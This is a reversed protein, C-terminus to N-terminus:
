RQRSIEHTANLTVPHWGPSSSKQLVQARQSRIRTITARFFTISTANILLKSHNKSLYYLYAYSYNGNFKESRQKNRGKKILFSNTEQYVKDLLNEHRSLSATNEELKPM